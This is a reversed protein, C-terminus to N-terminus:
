GKTTQEAIYREITAASVNGASSVFYSPTRLTRMRKLHPYEKRLMNEM